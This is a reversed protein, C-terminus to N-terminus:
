LGEQFGSSRRGRLIRHALRGHWAQKYVLANSNAWTKEDNSVAVPKWWGTSAQVCDFTNGAHSDREEHLDCMLVCWFCIFKCACPEAVLGHDLAPSPSQM